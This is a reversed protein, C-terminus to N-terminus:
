HALLYRSGGRMSLLCSLQLHCWAQGSQNLPHSFETVGTKPCAVTSFFKSKPPNVREVTPVLQRIFTWPKVVWVAIRSSTLGKVINITSSSRINRDLLNKM